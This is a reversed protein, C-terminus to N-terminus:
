FTIRRAPPPKLQNLGTKFRPAEPEARPKRFVVAQRYRNVPKSQRPRATTSGARHTEKWLRKAPYEHQYLEETFGELTNGGGLLPSVTAMLNAELGRWIMKVQQDEDLIGAEERLMVKRTVYQRLDMQEEWDWRFQLRNAEDLSDMTDTGFRRRLQDKWVLLSESM